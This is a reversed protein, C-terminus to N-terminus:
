AVTRGEGKPKMSICLISICVGFIAAAMTNIGLYKVLFFGIFFFPFLNRKGIVMITIAFGMAPLIGGAVALGHMVWAPIVDLFRIVADGSVITALFVTTFRLIFNFSFAPVTACWFIKDANAEEAYRDAMHIWAANVTRRVQDLLAGMVGFPVAIAVATQADLGSRLAAPIAILAALAPDAPINGGTAILGLYLMQISAGIVLGNDMDGMFIGLLFGIFLPSRLPTTLTYGANCHAVFYWIGCFIALSM